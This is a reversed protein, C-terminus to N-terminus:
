KHMQKNCSPLEHIRRVTDFRLSWLNSNHSTFYVFDVRKRNKAILMKITGKWSIKLDKQNLRAYFNVHFLRQKVFLGPSTILTGSSERFRTKKRRIGICWRSHGLCFELRWGIPEPGSRFNRRRHNASVKCRVRAVVDAGFKKEPPKRLGSQSLKRASSKPPQFIAESEGNVWFCTWLSWLFCCCREAELSLVEATKLVLRESDDYSDLSSSYCFFRTERM